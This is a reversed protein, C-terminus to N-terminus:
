ARRAKPTRPPRIQGSFPMHMLRAMEEVAEAHYPGGLDRIKRAIWRIPHGRLSRWHDRFLGAMHAWEAASLYLDGSCLAATGGHWRGRRTSGMLSRASVPIGCTETAETAAPGYSVGCIWLRDRHRELWGDIIDKVQKNTM